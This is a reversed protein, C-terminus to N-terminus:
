NDKSYTPNDLHFECVDLGDVQGPMGEKLKGMTIQIEVLNRAVEPHNDIFSRLKEASNVNEKFVGRSLRYALNWVVMKWMQGGGIHRSTHVRKMEATTFKGSKGLREQIRDPVLNVLTTAQLNSALHHFFIFEKFKDITPLAGSYV